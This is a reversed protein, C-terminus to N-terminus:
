RAPLRRRLLWVPLIATLPAPDRIRGLLGAPRLLLLALLLLFFVLNQYQELGAILQPGLIVVASGLLPGVVSGRGGVFLMIFLNIVTGIDYLDPGVFTTFEVYLSGAVSAMLAAIAFALLKYRTVRIGLTAAVDQRTALARWARGVHSGALVASAVTALGCAAWSVAYAVVPSASSLGGLALPPVGSIGITGNTLTTAGAAFSTTGLALAFTALALYHGRLRLLPLGVVVSAALSLVAAAAMALWPDVGFRTTLIATGYGGIAMFTTQAFSVQGALGLLLNLGVVPTAYLSVVTLNYLWFGSGSLPVAVVAAAVVAAVLPEVRRRGSRRM